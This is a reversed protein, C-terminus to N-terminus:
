KKPNQLIFEANEKDNSSDDQNCEKNFPEKDDEDYENNMFLDYEVWNEFVKGIHLRTNEYESNNIMTAEELEYSEINTQDSM